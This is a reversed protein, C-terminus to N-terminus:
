AGQKEYIMQASPGINQSMGCRKGVCVGGAELRTLGYKEAAKADAGKLVYVLAADQNVLQLEPNSNEINLRGGIPDSKIVRKRYPNGTITRLWKRNLGSIRKVMLAPVHALIHVHSGKRHGGEQVWILATSAGHRAILKTLLDIYRGTAKVIGSPEIGAAEWHITIFRNFPLGIANAHITAAILKGVHAVSLSDTENSAFNRAGGRKSPKHPSYPPLGLRLYNIAHVTGSQSLPLKGLTKRYVPINSVEGNQPNPSTEFTGGHRNGISQERMAISM